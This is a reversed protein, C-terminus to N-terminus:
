KEAIALPLPLFDPQGFYGAFPAPPFDVSTCVAHARLAVLTLVSIGDRRKPLKVARDVFREVSQKVPLLWKRLTVDDSCSIIFLTYFRFTFIDTYKEAFIATYM